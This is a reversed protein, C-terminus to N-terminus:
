VLTGPQWAVHTAWLPAMHTHSLRDPAIADVRFGEMAGDALVGEHETAAVAASPCGQHFISQRQAVNARRGSVM